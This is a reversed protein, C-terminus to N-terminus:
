RFDRPLRLDPHGVRGIVEDMEVTFAEQAGILLRLAWSRCSGNSPPSGGRFGGLALRNARLRNAEILGPRIRGPFARVPSMGAGAFPAEILGPRIRGPFPHSPM